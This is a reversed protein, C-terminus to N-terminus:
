APPRYLQWRRRRTSGEDDFAELWSDDERLFKADQVRGDNNLTDNMAQRVPFYRCLRVFGTLLINALRTDGPISASRRPSRSCTRSSSSSTRRPDRQRRVRGWILDLARRADDDLCALSVKHTGHPLVETVLWTRGIRRPGVEFGAAESALRGRARDM